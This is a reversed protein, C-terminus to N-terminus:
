KQSKNLYMLINEVHKVYSVFFGYITNANQFEFIITSPEGKRNYNQYKFLGEDFIVQGMGYHTEETRILHIGEYWFAAPSILKKVVEDQYIEKKQKRVESLMSNFGDSLEVGRQFKKFEQRIVQSLYDMCSYINECFDSLASVLLDNDIQSVSPINNQLNTLTENIIVLHREINASKRILGTYSRYAYPNLYSALVTNIQMM